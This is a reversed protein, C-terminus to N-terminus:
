KRSREPQANREAVRAEIENGCRPRRRRRRRLFDMLRARLACTISQARWLRCRRRCRQACASITNIFTCIDASFIVDCAPAAATSPRGGIKCKYLYSSPVVGAFSACDIRRRAGGSISADVRLVSCTHQAYAPTAILQIREILNGDIDVGDSDRRAEGSRRRAHGHRCNDGM